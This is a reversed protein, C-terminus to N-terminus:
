VGETEETALSVSAPDFRLEIRRRPDRGTQDSSRLWHAVAPLGQERLLQNALHRLERLVPYVTVQWKEDYWGKEIGDRSGWLGLGLAPRFEASLITYPLRESIVRRFAAGRSRAPDVFWVSLLEFNPTGALADSLAEAGIPYSFGRPLKYKFRTPIMAVAGSCGM